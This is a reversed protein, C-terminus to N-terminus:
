FNVIPYETKSYVILENGIDVTCHTDTNNIKEELSLVKKFFFIQMWYYPGEAFVSIFTVKFNINLEKVM